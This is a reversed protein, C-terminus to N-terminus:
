VSARDCGGPRLGCCAPLLGATVESTVPEGHWESIDDAMVAGFGQEPRCDQLIPKRMGVEEMAVIADAFAEEGEAQRLREEAFGDRVILNRIGAAGAPGAALHIRAGMRVEHHDLRIAFEACTMDAAM